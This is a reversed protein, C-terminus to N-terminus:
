ARGAPVPDEDSVYTWDASSLIQEEATREQEEQRAVAQPPILLLNCPAQHMVETAVSGLALREFGTRGHTGLVALDAKRENLVRVIEERPYGKRVRALQPAQGAPSNAKVFRHLEEGAFREIQEPTFHFSGGIEFPSLVFLAETNASPVGLDGLVRLGQQFAKASLPSLDVAIEVRAPPFADASRVVLVPCTAKRTVGDATGGLLARQLVGGEEAGVVVLDAKVQRALEVIERTSTGIVTRLQEAKFGPLRTMGTREAQRAIGDRVAEAQMEFWRPDMMEPGYTPLTYAHVLWLSAGTASAVTVGTRVVSDSAESLSTGIVVTHINRNM